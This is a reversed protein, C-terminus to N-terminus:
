ARQRAPFIPCAQEAAAVGGLEARYEARPLRGMLDSLARCCGRAVRKPGKGATCNTAVNFKPPWNEDAKKVFKM